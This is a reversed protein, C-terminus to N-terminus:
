FCYQVNVEIIIVNIDVFNQMWAACFLRLRVDFNQPVLKSFQVEEPKEAAQLAALFESSCNPTSKFAWMAHGKM